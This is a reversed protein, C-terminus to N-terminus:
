KDFEAAQVLLLVLLLDGSKESNREKNASALTLSCSTLCSVLALRTLVRIYERDRM